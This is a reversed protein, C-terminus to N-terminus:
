SRRLLNSSSRRLGAPIQPCPAEFIQIRRFSVLHHLEPLLAVPDDIPEELLGLSRALRGPILKLKLFAFDLLSKPSVSTVLSFPQGGRIKWLPSQADRSRRDGVQLDVAPAVIRSARLFAPLCGPLDESRHPPPAKVSHSSTMPEGSGPGSRAVRDIPVVSGCARRRRGADARFSLGRMAAIRPRPLGDSRERIEVTSTPKMCSPARGTRAAFARWASEVGDLCPTSRNCSSRPRVSPVRQRRPDSRGSAHPGPESTHRRRCRPNRRPRLSGCLDRGAATARRRQRSLGRSQLAPPRCPPSLRPWSSGTRLLPCMRCSAM